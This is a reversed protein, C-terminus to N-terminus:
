RPLDVTFWVDVGDRGIRHAATARLVVCGCPDHLELAGLASVLRGSTLDADAGARTTFRRTWPVTILAGGTWGGIALFGSAPELPGDALARALVPDVGFRGAVHAGLSPGDAGGIRARLAVVDGAGSLGGNAFVHASEGSLGVWTQSASARARLLPSTGPRDLPTIAGAAVEIEAVSQSGFRGVANAVNAAALLATGSAGAAVPLAGRAFLSGPATVGAVDSARTGLAALEIRPDIRHVWPDNADESAFGRAIPLSLTARASGAADDGHAAGDSAVGLAGRLALSAGLPGARRAFLAGGEARAFSLAGFDPEKLAGGEVLADYAGVGGLAGGRRASAIPGVAGSGFVEGGRVSAARVGSAFTWDDDRWAAEAVARDFPRAAADLDTTSTVGRAGRIMDVDWAVTQAKADEGAVPRASSGADIAGRADIALGDQRLHDWRVHTSSAATVLRADLAAGGVLYAGARVDLGHAADGDTWPQHVGEGVFFGDEGRYAVEPALLGFKGPSRLWVVPAWMVPVGFLELRPNRVIVDYPPAVTAGDFSVALPTGLCPCFALTGRGQMEVGLKSRVLRLRESRLFFPPEQVRVNGSADVARSRLDFDIRDARIDM